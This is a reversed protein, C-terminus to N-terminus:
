RLRKRNIVDDERKEEEDDLMEQRDIMKLANAFM